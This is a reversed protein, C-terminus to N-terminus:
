DENNEDIIPIKQSYAFFTPVAAHSNIFYRRSVSSLDFGSLSVFNLFSVIVNLLKM